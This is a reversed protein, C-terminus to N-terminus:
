IRYGSKLTIHRVTIAHVLERDFDISFSDQDFIRLIIYLAIAQFMSLTTWEDADEMEKMFRDKEMTIARWIFPSTAVTKATYLSIISKCIELPASSPLSPGQTPLSISHIFLPLTSTAFLTTYSKISQLLFTRGIQSGNSLQTHTFPSRPSVGSQSLYDYDVPRLVLYPTHFMCDAPTSFTSELILSPLPGPSVWDFSLDNDLSDSRLNIAVDSNELDEMYWASREWDFATNQSLLDPVVALSRSHDVNNNLLAPNNCSLSTDWSIDNQVGLAPIEVLSIGGAAPEDLTPLTPQQAVNESRRTLEYVCALDKDRCRGCPPSESDCKVKVKRCPACSKRLVPVNDGLKKRCYLVHRNRSPRKTFAKSCIKCLFPGSNPDYQRSPKTPAKEGLPGNQHLVPEVIHRQDDTMSSELLTLLAATGPSTTYAAIIATTTTSCVAM